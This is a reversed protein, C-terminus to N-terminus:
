VKFKSLEQKLQISGNSIEQINRVISVISDRSKNSLESITGINAIIEQTENSVNKSISLSKQATNATEGMMTSVNQVSQEVEESNGALAEVFNVNKEIEQTIDDISGSMVSVTANIETLSHQTKEALKRVEDAVVAFGRGHEGARAAEIAANLALLNTQDSIDRIVGLVNRIESANTNLERLSNALTVENEVSIKLNNILNEVDDQTSTLTSVAEYINEKTAEADNVSIDLTTRVEEGKSSAVSAEKSEHEIHKSIESSASNMTNAIQNNQESITGISQLLTSLERLVNFLSYQIFTIENSNKDVNKSSQLNIVGNEQTIKELDTAIDIFGKRLNRTVIFLLILGLFTLFATIFIASTVFSRTKSASKRLKEANGVNNEDKQLSKKVTIISNNLKNTQAVARDNVDLVVDVTASALDNLIEQTAVIDDYSKSNKIQQIQKKLDKYSPSFISSKKVVKETWNNLMSVVLARTKTDNPFSALKILQTSISGIFELQEVNSAINAFSSSFKRSDDLTKENSLLIKQISKKLVSANKTELNQYDEVVHNYYTFSFITIVFALVVWITTAFIKKIITNNM